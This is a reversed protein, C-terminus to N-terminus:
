NNYLKRKKLRPPTFWLTSNLASVFNDEYILNLYECIKILFAHSTNHIFSFLVQQLNLYSKYKPTKSSSGTNPTM